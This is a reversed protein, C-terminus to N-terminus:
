DSTMEIESELEMSDFALERKAPPERSPQEPKYNPWCRFISPKVNKKLYNRGTNFSLRIDDETFHQECIRTHVTMRFLDPKMNEKMKILNLWLRKRKDMNFKFVSVGTKQGDGTYSSGKCVPVCCYKGLSSPSHRDESTDRSHM